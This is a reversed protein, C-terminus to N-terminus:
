RVLSLLWIALSFYILLGTIDKLTTVFPGSVIAPDINLRTVVFPILAGLFAAVTLAIVMTLAVILGLIGGYGEWLFAICGAVMGSILGILSGLRAEQFVARWFHGPDLRGTALGRVVITSSQVGINGGMAMIAPIFALLAILMGPEFEGEFARIIGAPIMTGLLAVILWPFRIRVAQATSGNQIEEGDTGAMKYIDESAEEEIVDLVDDVTVRGVLTNTLDVVPLARLNYKRVLNAVEEQDVDTTVRVVETDMIEKLPTLSPAVILNKLSLVGSLHGEGDVVYTYSITKVDSRRLREIAEEVKMEGPLAFFDPTMIGGATDEDYKLLRHVDEAEEKKMLKLIQGERDEPLDGLIDAANDSPMVELIRSLRADELSELLEGKPGSGMEPLVRAAEEPKLFDLLAVKEERGLHNLIEALDAPHTDKIIKALESTAENALYGRIQKLKKESKKKMVAVMLLLFM